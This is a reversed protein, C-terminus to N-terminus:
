GPGKGTFTLDWVLRQWESLSSGTVEPSVKHCDQGQEEATRREAAAAFAADADQAAARWAQIMQQLAGEVAVCRSEVRQRKAAPTEDARNGENTSPGPDIISPASHGEGGAAGMCGMHLLAAAANSTNAPNGANSKGFRSVATILTANMATNAPQSGANNNTPTTQLLPQISDNNNAATPQLPPQPAPALNSRYQFFDALSQVPRTSPGPGVVRLFKYANMKKKYVRLLKLYTTPPVLRLTGNTVKNVTEAKLKCDLPPPTGLMHRILALGEPGLLIIGHPHNAGGGSGGTLNAEQWSDNQLGKQLIEVPHEDEMCNVYIVPDSGDVKVIAWHQQRQVIQM